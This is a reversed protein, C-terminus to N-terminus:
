AYSTSRANLLLPNIPTSMSFGPPPRSLDALHLPVVNSPFQNLYRPALGEGRPVQASHHQLSPPPLSSSEGRAHSVGSGSDFNFRRLGEESHNYSPDSLSIYKAPRQGRDLDRMVGTRVGLNFGFDNAYAM